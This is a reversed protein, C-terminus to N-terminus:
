GRGCAPCYNEPQQRPDQRPNEASIPESETRNEATTLIPREDNTVEPDIESELSKITLTPNGDTHSEPNFVTTSEAQAVSGTILPSFLIIFATIAITKVLNVEDLIDILVSISRDIGSLNEINIGL